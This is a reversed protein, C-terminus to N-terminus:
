VTISCLPISILLRKNAMQYLIEMSKVRNISVNAYLGIAKVCFIYASICIYAIYVSLTLQTAIHM